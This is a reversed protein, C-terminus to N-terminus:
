FKELYKNNHHVVESTKLDFNDLAKNVRNIFKKCYKQLQDNAFKYAYSEAKARAIKKGVEVDFVDNPHLRAQANVTFTHFISDQSDQGALACMNGIMTKIEYISCKVRYDILCTVVKKEENVIYRPEKFSLKIKFDM